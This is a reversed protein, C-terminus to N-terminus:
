LNIQKLKQKVYNFKSNLPVITLGLKGYYM